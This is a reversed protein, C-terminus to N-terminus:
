RHNPLIITSIIIVHRVRFLLYNNYKNESLKMFIICQILKNICIFLDINNQIRAIDRVHHAKRRSTAMSSPQSAAQSYARPSLSLLRRQTPRITQSTQMKGSPTM